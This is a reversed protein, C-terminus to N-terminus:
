ADQFNNIMNTWETAFFSSVRYAQALREQDLHAQAQVVKRIALRRKRLMHRAVEPAVVHEIGRLLEKDRIRLVPPASGHEVISAAIRKMAYATRTDKLANVLLTRSNKFGSIEKQSYWSNVLDEKSRPRVLIESSFESFRVSKGSPVKIKVKPLVSASLASEREVRGQHQGQRQPLEFQDRPKQVAMTNNQNLKHM